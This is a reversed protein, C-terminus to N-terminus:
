RRNDDNDNSDNDDDGYYILQYATYADYTFLIIVPVVVILLWFNMGVFQYLAVLGLVVLAGYSVYKLYNFVCIAANLMANLIAEFQEQDM